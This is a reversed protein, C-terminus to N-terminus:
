LMQGVLEQDFFAFPQMHAILKNTPESFGTLVTTRRGSRAASFALQHALVTKGSGPPGAIIALSGRQIGGGLVEDLGPVGSPDLPLSAPASGPDTDDPRDTM